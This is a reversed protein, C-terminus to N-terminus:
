KQHVKYKANVHSHAKTAKRGQTSSNEGLHKQIKHKMKVDQRKVIEKLNLAVEM